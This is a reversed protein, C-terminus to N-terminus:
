GAPKPEKPLGLVREGVINRQIEDTGGAIRYGPAGLVHDGWAYTGWEGSDAVLRMGLMASAAASIQDMGITWLLKGISGEPGPTHGTRVTAAARALSWERVKQVTYVRALQQRVLPDADSGVARALAALQVFDGGRNTTAGSSAREFGLVTLAVKWGQGEEGVRLSDDVVVETFFVENFSAGGSMQRIPRVEVGPADMPVLFATMGGHKPLDPDTRCLALGWGSLHAGSSWVKQGDIRWEATGGAAGRVARTAVAALDSGAGPESFLQCCLEDGLLFPRVFRERQAETGFQALTPAILRTTVSFTEHGTPVEFGAEVEAFAREFAPPLGRGGWEPAWTLAAFGARVKEQHWAVLEAVQRLEGEPDLNHFVTVDFDGDGWTFTATHRRPRRAALWREADAVFSALDEGGTAM